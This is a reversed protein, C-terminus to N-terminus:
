MSSSERVEVRHPVVIAQPDGGQSSLRKILARLAESAIAEKEPIVTTLSPVSFVGEELGDFGAVAMDAPVSIGLDHAQRLVGLALLDTACFVADPVRGTTEVLHLLAARGDTRHYTDVPVILEADVSMQAAALGARYGAERKAAMALRGHPDAGIFAISKRGQEILHRTADFAAREDDIGIHDFRSGLENEGILVVPRSPEREAMWRLSSDVPSLITGEVYEGAPGYMADREVAKDGLTQRVLVGFGHGSAVEVIARALEAFYPVDLEPIVLQIFGSRGSRLSRAAQSPTYGLEAIASRVRLLVDESIHPYGNVVNSVTRRSVGALRAVDEQTPM